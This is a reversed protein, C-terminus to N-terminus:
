AYEIEEKQGGPAPKVVHALLQYGDLAPLIVRRLKMAEAPAFIVEGTIHNYASKQAHELPARQVFPVRGSALLILETATVCVWVWGNRLWHGVDVKTHTKMLVRIEANGM